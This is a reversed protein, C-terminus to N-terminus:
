VSEQPKEGGSEGLEKGIALAMALVTATTPDKEFLAAWTNMFTIMNQDNQELIPNAQEPYKEILAQFAKNPKVTNIESM